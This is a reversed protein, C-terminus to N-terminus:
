FDQTEGANTLRLYRDFARIAEEQLGRMEYIVGVNYWAAAVRNDRALAARFHALARDYDHFMLAALGQYQLADLAYYTQKGTRSFDAVARGLRSYATKANALSQKEDTTKVYLLYKGCLYWALATVQHVALLRDCETVLARDDGAKAAADIKALSEKERTLDITQAWCLSSLLFLLLRRM